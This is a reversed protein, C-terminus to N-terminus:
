CHLKNTQSGISFVSMSQMGVVPQCFLLQRRLESRRVLLSLSAVDKAFFQLIVQAWLFVCRELGPNELTSALQAGFGSPTLLHKGELVAFEAMPQLIPLTHPAMMKEALVVFSLSAGCPGCTIKGSLLAPTQQSCGKARLLHYLPQTSVSKVGDYAM